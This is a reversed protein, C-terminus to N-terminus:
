IVGPQWGRDVPRPSVLNLAKALAIDLMVIEHGDLYVCDEIQRATDRFFVQLYNENNKQRAVFWLEQQYVEKTLFKEFKISSVGKKSFSRWYKQLYFQIASKVFVLDTFDRNTLVFDFFEASVITHRETRSRRSNFADRFEVESVEVQAYIRINKHSFNIM